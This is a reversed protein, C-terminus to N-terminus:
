PNARYQDTNETKESHCWDLSQGYLYGKQANSESVSPCMFVKNSGGCSLLKNWGLLLPSIFLCLGLNQAQSCSNYSILTPLSLTCTDE